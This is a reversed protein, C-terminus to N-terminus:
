GRFTTWLAAAMLLLILAGGVAETRRFVRTDLTFAEWGGSMRAILFFVALLIPILAFTAIVIYYILM